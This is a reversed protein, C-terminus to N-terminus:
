DLDEDGKISADSVNLSPKEESELRTGDAVDLERVVIRSLVNQRAIEALTAYPEEMTELSRTESLYNWGVLYHVVKINGHFQKWTIPKRHRRRQNDAWRPYATQFFRFHPWWLGELLSVVLPNAYLLPFKSLCGVIDLLECLYAGTHRRVEEDGEISEVHDESMQHISHLCSTDIRKYEIAAERCESVFWYWQSGMDGTFAKTKYGM